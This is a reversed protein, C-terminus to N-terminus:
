VPLHVHAEVKGDVVLEWESKYHDLSEPCTTLTRKM